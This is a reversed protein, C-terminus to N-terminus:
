KLASCDGIQYPVNTRLCLELERLLPKLGKEKGDQAIVEALSGREIKARILSMYRREDPSASGMAKKFLGELEPRLGAVGSQIAKELLDHLADEDEELDLGPCRLLALVFTTIAMDSRICEQEDLAKIEVCRRSFRVIIGRSDVWEHCLMEADHRRLQAFMEEQIRLHQKADKLREPIVGHSIIPLNRQNERYYILRNDMKGTPKGEVFPSSASIAVLYPILARLNNYLTVMGRENQYPINIQLAQINLWGHQKLNFLRDYVEFIEKDEHDWVATQELRLLPHMGLGLFCYEDGLARYLSRLGAFLDFELEALDKAPKSPVVELVHKQLEKSIHVTGFEFENQVRGSLRRILQDNIPQPTFSADNISYEHETGITLPEM